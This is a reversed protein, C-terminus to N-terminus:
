KEIRLQEILEDKAEIVQEALYLSKELSLIKGNLNEIKEPNKEEETRIFSHLPVEHYALKKTTMHGGLEITSLSETLEDVNLILENLFDKFGIIISIEIVIDIRPSETRLISYVAQTSRGSKEAIERVSIDKQRLMQKILNGYHFKEIEAM